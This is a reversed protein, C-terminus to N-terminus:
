FSDGHICVTVSKESKESCLHAPEYMLHPHAPRIYTVSAFYVKAKFVTQKGGCM